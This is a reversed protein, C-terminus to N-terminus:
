DCLQVVYRGYDFKRTNKIYLNYRMLNNVKDTLVLRLFNHIFLNLIINCKM